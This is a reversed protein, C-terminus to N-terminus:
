INLKLGVADDVIDFIFDNNPNQYIQNFIDENTALLGTVYNYYKLRQPTVGFILIFMRNIKMEEFKCNDGLKALILTSHHQKQNYHVYHISGKYDHIRHIKESINNREKDTPKAYKDLLTLMNGIVSEYDDCHLDVLKIDDFYIDNTIHTNKALTIMLDKQTFLHDNINYILPREQNSAILNTDSIIIDYNAYSEDYINNLDIMAINRYMNESASKNIYHFQLKNFLRNLSQSIAIKPYQYDFSIEELYLAIINSVDYIQTRHVSVNFRKSLIRDIEYSIKSIIPYDYYKQTLGFYPYQYTPLLEFKNKTIINLTWAYLAEYWITPTLDIKWVTQLYNIMERNLDECEEKYKSHTEKNVNSYDRYVSLLVALSLKENDQYRDFSIALGDYIHNAIHLEESDILDFINQNDISEIYKNLKNRNKQIIIYEALRRKESSSLNFHHDNLIDTVINRINIYISRDDMYTNIDDTAETLITTNCRLNIATLAYRISLENGKVIIGAYPIGQIELSYSTFIKRIFKMDNRLNSRSYGLSNAITEISIPSPSNILKDAIYAARLILNRPRRINKNYFASCENIITAFLDNDVIQYTITKENIILEIGYCTTISKLTILDKKLTNASIHFLSKLETFDVIKYILIHFLELYNRIHYKTM